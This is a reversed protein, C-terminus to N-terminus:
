KNIIWEQDSEPMNICRNIVVSLDPYVGKGVDLCMDTRNSPRLSKDGSRNYEWKQSSKGPECKNQVVGNKGKVDLCMEDQNGNLYPTSITEDPNHVFVQEQVKTCTRATV